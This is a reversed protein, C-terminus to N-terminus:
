RNTSYRPSVSAPDVVYVPKKHVFPLRGGTMFHRAVLLALLIAIGALVRRAQPHQLWPALTGAHKDPAPTTTPAAATHALSRALETWDVKPHETLILRYYYSECQSRACYGTKLRSLKQDADPQLQNGLALRALEDGTVRTGCQLCEAVVYNKFVDSIEDAPLEAVALAELIAQYCVPLADIRVQVVQSGSQSM